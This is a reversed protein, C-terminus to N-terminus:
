EDVSPKPAKAPAAPLEDGTLFGDGNKDRAAFQREIRRESVKNWVKGDKQAKAEFFSLYEQLSVKGDSNADMPHAKKAAGAPMAALSLMMVMASGLFRNM